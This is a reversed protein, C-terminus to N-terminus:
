GRAAQKRHQYELFSIKGAAYLQDDSPAVPKSFAPLSKRARVLAAMGIGVVLVTALEVLWVIWNATVAADFAMGDVM